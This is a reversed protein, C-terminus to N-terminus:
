ASIVIQAKANNWLRNNADLYAWHVIDLVMGAPLESAFSWHPFFMGAQIRDCYVVYQLLDGPVREILKLSLPRVGLSNMIDRIQVETRQLQCIAKEYVTRRSSQMHCMAGYLYLHQLERLIRDFHTVIARYYFRARIEDLLEDSTLERGECLQALEPAAAFRNKLVEQLENNREKIWMELEADIPDTSFRADEPWIQWNELLMQFVRRIESFECELLTFAEIASRIVSDDDGKLFLFPSFEHIAQKRDQLIQRDAIM